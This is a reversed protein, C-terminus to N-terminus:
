RLPLLFRHGFNQSDAAREREREHDGQRARDPALHPPKMMLGPMQPSFSNQWLRAPWHKLKSTPPVHVTL